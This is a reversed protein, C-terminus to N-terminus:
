FSVAKYRETGNQKNECKNETDLLGVEGVDCLKVNGARNLLVNDPKIDRHMMGLDHLYAIANLISRAINALVSEPISKGLKAAQEYFDKLSCDMLESIIWISGEYNFYGYYEVINEVHELRDIVDTEIIYDKDKKM